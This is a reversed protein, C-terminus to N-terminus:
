GSEVLQLRPHPRYNTPTCEHFPVGRARQADWSEGLSDNFVVYLQGRLRDAKPLVFVVAGGCTWQLSGDANGATMPRPFGDGVRSNDLTYPHAGAILDTWGWEILAERVTRLQPKVVANM